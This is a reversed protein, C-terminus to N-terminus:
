HFNFGFSIGYSTFGDNGIQAGDSSSLIGDGGFERDLHLTPRNEGLNRTWFTITWDEDVDGVELALNADTGADYSIVDSFNRNDTYAASAVLVASFNARYGDFITPLEYNIWSTVQYDPANRAELGSRDRVSAGNGDVTCLGALLEDTVCVSNPFSIIQGDMLSMSSNLTLSESVAWSLMMEIGKTESSAVNKTVNRRLIPDVNSVQQGKIKMIYASIDARVRGDFFVGRSGIEYSEYAEPGFSWTDPNTTVETVGGDFGGAKTSEVWKAYLSIDDSPRYRLVVQPDFNNENYDADNVILSNSIFRATPQFQSAQNKFPTRGLIVANNFGWVPVGSEAEVDWGAALDSAKPLMSRGLPLITPAGTIPHAVIWEASTNRGRGHERVQTYRGGLDLSAKDDLFNYTVTAFASSWTSDVSTLSGRISRNSDMAFQLNQMDHDNKQWYLGASWSITKDLPSSIRLETSWQDFEENRSRPNTVLPGGTNLASNEYVHHSFGTKSNVQLGNGMEYKLDLLANWPKVVAGDKFDCNEFNEPIPIGPAALSTCTSADLVGARNAPNPGNAAIIRNGFLSPSLVPSFGQGLGINSFVGPAAKYDPVDSVASIGSVLVSEGQNMDLPASNRVLLTPRPGLDNKSLEFKTTAQFQENPTWQLTVRGAKSEREPFKNGTFYDRLFGELIDYRAAVRIGLTDTIPGGFAGEVERSGFNGLEAKLNGTWEVGPKRTTINLAGAGANQGFYVPQPGKLVEIQAIDLFQNKIQSARGFHIGDIFTPVGQELALNKSQSGAGRMILGQEEGKDQIILGPTFISLDKLNELGQRTIDDGGIVELSVPVDQTAQERRQATVIIEELVQAQALTSYTGTALVTCAIFSFLGLEFFKKM